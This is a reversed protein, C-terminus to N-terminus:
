YIQAARPAACVDQQSCAVQQVSGAMDGHGTCLANRYLYPRYMLLVTVDLGVTATGTCGYLLTEERSHPRADLTSIYGDDTNRPEMIVVCTKMNVNTHSAHAPVVRCCALLAGCTALIRMGRVCM